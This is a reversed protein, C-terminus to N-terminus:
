RRQAALKQAARRAKRNLPRPPQAATVPLVPSASVPVHAKAPTSTPAPAPAEEPDGDAPDDLPPGSAFLKGFLGREFALFEEDSMGSTPPPPPTAPQFRFAPESARVTERRSGGRLLNRAWQFRRMCAAEYRRLLALTKPTKLEIGHVAADREAEDLLDLVEAKKRGLREIEAAAVERDGEPDYAPDGENPDAAPGRLEPPTGLLDLALSKEAETWGRGEDLAAALARWRGILWDCGQTTMELMRAVVAPKKSLRAGLEEAELGRDDDWCSSARLAHYSRLTTEHKQCRDVRVTSVVLQDYLWEDEADALTYGSRWAEKRQAVAGAEEDPLVVGAGALGHKLANARSARKGEESKPGTSKQSNLCNARIQRATAM